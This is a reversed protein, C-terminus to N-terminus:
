FPWGASFNYVIRRVDKIAKGGLVTPTFKTKLAAAAAAAQLLPHGRVTLLRLVTGDEGVLFKVEVRGNAQAAKALEPYKPAVEDRPVARTLGVEIPSQSEVVAITEQEVKEADTEVIKMNDLFQLTEDASRRLKHDNPALHDWRRLAALGADVKADDKTRVGANILEFSEQLIAELQVKDVAQKPPLTNNPQQASAFFACVLLLGVTPFIRM